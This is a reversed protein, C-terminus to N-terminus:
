KDKKDCSATTRFTTKFISFMIPESEILMENMQALAFVMLILNHM